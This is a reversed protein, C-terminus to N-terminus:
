CVARGALFLVRLLFVVVSCEGIGAGAKLPLTLVVGSLGQWAEQGWGRCVSSPPWSLSTKLGIPEGTLNCSFVAGSPLQPRDPIGERTERVPSRPFSHRTCLTYYPNDMFIDNVSRIQKHSRRGKSSQCSFPFDGFAVAAADIM